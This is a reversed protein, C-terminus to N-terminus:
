IIIDDEGLEEDPPLIVKSPDVYNPDIPDLGLQEREYLRIFAERQVWDRKNWDPYYMYGFGIGCFTITILVFCTLHMVYTDEEKDESSYGFSVWNKNELPKSFDPVKKFIAETPPCTETTETKKGSTAIPRYMIKGNRELIKSIWLRRCISLAAM